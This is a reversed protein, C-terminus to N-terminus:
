GTVVMGGDRVMCQGTMMRSTDSALFLVADVIGRPALHTKISQKESHPTLADPPAWKDLQKETLAWM